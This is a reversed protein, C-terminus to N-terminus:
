DAAVFLEGGFGTAYPAVAWQAPICPRSYGMLAPPFLGGSSMPTSEVQPLGPGYAKVSAAAVWNERRNGVLLFAGGPFGGGAIPPAYAPLPTSWAYQTPIFYPNFYVLGNLEAVSSPPGHTQGAAPDTFCAETKVDAMVGHSAGDLIQVAGSAVFVGTWTYAPGVVFPNVDGQRYERRFVLRSTYSIALEDIGDGTRDPVRAVWFGGSNPPFPLGALDSIPALFSASSTVGTALEWIQIHPGGTPGPATVLRDHGGGFRGAGLRVGGQFTSAYAFFERTLVLTSGSLRFVKVHPGGGVDPAVAVGLSGDGFFDGCAVHFGIALDASWAFLEAIVGGSVTFARLHSPSGPGPVTFVVHSNADLPDRCVAVRVGTSLNSAYAFFSGLLANDSSRFVKVHPGGGPGAATVYVPDARAVSAFWLVGAILAASLQSQIRINM